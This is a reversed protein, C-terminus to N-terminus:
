LSLLEFADDNEPPIDEDVPPDLTFLSALIEDVSADGPLQTDSGINQDPEGTPQVNTAVENLSRGGGDDQVLPDFVNDSNPLPMTSTEASANSDTGSLVDDVAASGAADSSNQAPGNEFTDVLTNPGTDGIDAIVDNIESDESTDRVPLILNDAPNCFACAPPILDQTQAGESDFIIVDTDQDDEVQADVDPGANGYVIEYGSDDNLNTASTEGTGEILITGDDEVEHWIVETETVELALDERSLETGDTDTQIITVEYILDGNADWVQDPNPTFWDIYDIEGTDQDVVFYGADAGELTYIPGDEGDDGGADQWVAGDETVVLELDDRSIEAGDADTHVLTVEYILDGNADWVQDANPTFWDIYSIDGTNQDAVFYGLDPGELTYVTGDGEDGGDGDGDDGGDGSGEQWVAGDETVVLELNERSLETGDTDTQVVSVEYILDGNSDWVQDANPTFWDIYGLEGTGQDVVFYGADPGELTYVPEDGGGGGESGADQWVAGDETVVLELNERSVELGDEDTGIVSVEYILDGNADWVQDANPTFWDIYSIDGTDPDVVFYGVDSGALTYVTGDGGGDGGDGGDDIGITGDGDIDAQLQAEVTQVNDLVSPATIQGDTDVDSYSYDGDEHQWLVLYGADATDAHIATLGTFTEPGVGGNADQLTTTNSGDDLVYSTGDASILLTVDGSDEILTSQAQSDWGGADVIEDFTFSGDSFELVEVNDQVFDTGEGVVSLGGEVVSITYSLASQDFVARDAGAGGNLTDDGAGGNLTDDGANGLILDDGEGGSIADNGEGEVVLMQTLSVNDLIVSPYVGVGAPVPRLIITTVDTTPTFEISYEEYSTGQVVTSGLVTSTAQDVIEFRVPINTPTFWTSDIRAASIADFNLTYNEDALLPTELTQQIAESDGVDGGSGYSRMTVYGTGDSAENSPNRLESTTGDDASDPSGSANSWGVLGNVSNFTHTGDEFSGNTLLNGSPTTDASGDDGSLTDNGTGGVLTDDGDGGQVSDDGAGGDLSDSGENGFLTDGGLGASIRDDGEGGEAYFATDAAVGDITDNGEDLYIDDSDENPGMFVFDNGTGGHIEDDGQSGALLDNGEGGYVTDTGISGILTDNGGRGYIIDDGDRGFVHDDGEGADISDNGFLGELEDNGDGGLLTDDGYGGRLTDDGIGGELLDNGAEGELSDNGANGQLTDNGGRGLLLDDEDGGVLLDDRPTGQGDGVVGDGDIDAQLQAEITQVNDLVAPATIQGDTDVDSYSYSGDEHQWLVLFGIEATDAHIATLGPYTEPGVEGNADLLTTTGDTNSLVYSAGDPSILLTVDGSDEVVTGPTAEWGGLDFIDAFSFSLNSFDLFEISDQVFDIGEGVVNFGGSVISITYEWNNLGFSAHDEGAGGELRDDGDGGDLTDDGAGGQLLDNGTEGLLQDNGDNGQLTDEGVGGVLGNDAQNGILLDDGSGGTANEILSREDGLYQRASYVQGDVVGDATTVTQATSNVDFDSAEGPTLDIRLDTTYNSLNYHDVGDGDWITRFIVNADPTGQSVGDIFTEGTTQSFTYETDDANSEFNAGYMHQLAAIDLLMLSQAYGADDELRFDYTMATFQVDDVDTPLRGLGGTNGDFSHTLGVSHGLEHMILYHGYGGISFDTFEDAIWVQGSDESNWIPFGGLGYFSGNTTQMFRVEAEQDEDLAGEEGDLETFTLGSVDEFNQILARIEAADEESFAQFGNVSNQWLERYPGINRGGFDNASDPFSFTLDPNVWQGGGLIGDITQDGSSQTAVGESVGYDIVNDPETPM